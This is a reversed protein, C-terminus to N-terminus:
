SSINPNTQWNYWNLNLKDGKALGIFNSGMYFKKAGPVAVTYDQSGIHLTM